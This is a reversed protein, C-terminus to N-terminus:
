VITEHQARSEEEDEQRKRGEAEGAHSLSPTGGSTSTLSTEGRSISTPSRISSRPRRSGAPGCPGRSRGRCAAGDRAVARGRRSCRPRRRRRTGRVADLDDDALRELLAEAPVAVLGHVRRHRSVDLDGERRACRASRREDPHHVAHHEVDRRRRYARADDLRARGFTRADKREESHRGADGRRAPQRDLLERRTRGAILGPELSPSRM